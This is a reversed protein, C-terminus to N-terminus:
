FKYGISFKVAVDELEATVKNAPSSNSEATYDEFDTYTAEAKYYMNNGYPLDGKTGLGVTYGFVDKNPYTSGSNLSELSNITAHQIGLKAYVPFGSVESMPIDAYFQIVNDLEAEAKYTGTDGRSNTDSRSKSGMERTPIYSIGFAGGNETIAEIFVEPVIATESHSGPNNEGSTRTTETGSVDFMHAAATIGVGVEAKVSQLSIFLFSLAIAIIKKM